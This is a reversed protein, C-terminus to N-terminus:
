KVPPTFLTSRLSEYCSIRDNLTEIASCKQFSPSSALWLGAFLLGACTALLAARIGIRDAADEPTKLEAAEDKQSPVGLDDWDFM